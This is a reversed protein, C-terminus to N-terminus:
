TINEIFIYTLIWIKGALGDVNDKIAQLIDQEHCNPGQAIRGYFRVFHTLMFVTMFWTIRCFDSVLSAALM